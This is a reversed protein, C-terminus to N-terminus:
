ELIIFHHSLCHCTNFTTFINYAHCQSKFFGTSFYHVTSLESCHTITTSLIPVLPSMKQEQSLVADRVQVKGWITVSFNESHLFTKLIPFSSLILFFAKQLLFSFLFSFSLPFIEAYFILIPLRVLFHSFLFLSIPRKGKTKISWRSAADYLRCLTNCFVHVMYVFFDRWWLHRRILYVNINILSTNFLCSSNKCIRSNM